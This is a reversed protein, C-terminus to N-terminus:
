RRGVGAGWARAFVRKVRKGGTANMVQEAKRKVGYRREVFTAHAELNHLRLMTYGARQIIQGEGGYVKRRYTVAAGGGLAMFGDAGRVIRGAGIVITAGLPDFEDRRQRAKVLKKALADIQLNIDWFTSGKPEKPPVGNPYWFEHLKQLRVIEGELNAVWRDLADKYAETYRSPRLMPLPVANVGVDKGAMIWGRVYRNTDAPSIRAATVVFDEALLKIADREGDLMKQAIVRVRNRFEDTKIRAVVRM